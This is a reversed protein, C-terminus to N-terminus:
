ETKINEIIKKTREHERKRNQSILCGCSSQM